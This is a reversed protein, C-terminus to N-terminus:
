EAGEAAARAADAASRIRAQDLGAVITSPHDASMLCCKKFKKGSGCPCPENRGIKRRKMQRETPQVQIPVCLGPHLKNIAIAEAESIIEGTDCRM